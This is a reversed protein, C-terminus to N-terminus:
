WSRYFWNRVYAEGTESASAPIDGNNSTPVPMGVVLLQAM